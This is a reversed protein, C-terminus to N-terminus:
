TRSSEWRTSAHSLRLLTTPTCRRWCSTKSNGVHHRPPRQANFLVRPEPGEKYAKIGGGIPFWGSLFPRKDEGVEVRLGLDEYVERRARPSTYDLGGYGDWIRATIQREAEDLQELEAVRNRARQLTHEVQKRQVDVESLM